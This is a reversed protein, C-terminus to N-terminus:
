LLALTSLGLMGCRPFPLLLFKIWAVWVMRALALVAWFLPLCMSQSCLGSGRSDVYGLPLLALLYLRGKRGKPRVNWQASVDCSLAVVRQWATGGWRRGRGIRGWRRRWSEQKNRYAGESTCVYGLLFVGQAQWLSPIKKVCVEWAALPALQMVRPAVDVATRGKGCHWSSRASHCRHFLADRVASRGQQQPHSLLGPPSEM